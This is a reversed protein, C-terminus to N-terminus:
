IWQGCGAALMERMGLVGRQDRIHLWAQKHSPLSCAVRLSDAMSCGSAETELSRAWTEISM